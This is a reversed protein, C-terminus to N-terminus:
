EIVAIVVTVADSRSSTVTIRKNGNSYRSVCENSAAVCGRAGPASVYGKAALTRTYFDSNQKPSYRNVMSLTRVPSPTDRYVIDEAVVTKPMRAFGAGISNEPVARSPLELVGIQGRTSNGAPTLEVTIYYKADKTPSGLVSKGRHPTDNMRAGWEERYFAKVKDIPLPATFRSARMHLGNYTMDNSVVEGRAGDPVPVSPWDAAAATPLTCACAVFFLVVANLSRRM